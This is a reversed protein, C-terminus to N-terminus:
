HAMFFILWDGAGITALCERLCTVQLCMNLQVCSLLRKAPILAVLSERLCSIQSCMIHKIDGLNQAAIAMAADDMDWIAISFGQKALREATAFGIGQAGGTIVVVNNRSM